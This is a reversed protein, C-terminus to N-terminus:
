PTMDYEITVDYRGKGKTLRKVLYDPRDSLLDGNTVYAEHIASRSNLFVVLKRGLRMSIVDSQYRKSLELACQAINKEPFYLILFHGQFRLYPHM